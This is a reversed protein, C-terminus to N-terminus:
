KKILVMAYGSKVFYNRIGLYHLFLSFSYFITQIFKKIGGKHLIPNTLPYYIPQYRYILRRLKYEGVHAYNTQMTQSLYNMVAEPNYPKIHTFNNYFTKSLLPAVLVFVGKSKLIRNIESLLKLADAYDFHEILHACFAGDFEGDEFKTNLVDSKLVNCGRERAKNVSDENHDIGVIRKPDKVAFNGMGCGVDVIKKCGNFFKFYKEYESNKVNFFSHHINRLKGYFNIM